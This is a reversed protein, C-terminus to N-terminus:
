TSQKALQTPSWQRLQITPILGLLLAIVSMILRLVLGLVIAVVVWWTRLRWQGRKSLLARVGSWGDTLAALGLAVLAPIFVMVVPVAEGPLPLETAGFSLAITLGCFLLLAQRKVFSTIKNL